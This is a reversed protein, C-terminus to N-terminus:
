LTWDLAERIAEFLETPPSNKPAPMRVSTRRTFYPIDLREIANIEAEVTNAGVTPRECLRRIVALRTTGSVLAGPQVSVRIIAAYNETAFYIWRRERGLVARLRRRFAKWRAPTGVLCHWGAAFGAVIEDSYKDPSEPRGTGTPSKGLVSSRSLLSEPNSNPFFGTRYLLDTASRTKTVSSVHWLADLDVLVPHEGAAILNERHCDVANSLYAAAILGGLRKYFRRVAAVDPCRAPSIHEV